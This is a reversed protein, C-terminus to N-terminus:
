SEEPPSAERETLVARYTPYRPQDIALKDLTTAWLHERVGPSGLDLAGSRLREGLEANLTDLSGDGLLAHLRELEATEATPGLTLDRRALEVAGAAVRDEFAAREPDAAPARLYAAVAALIEDATPDDRM